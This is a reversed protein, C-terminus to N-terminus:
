ATKTARLHRGVAFWAGVLGLMISSILLVFTDFFSIGLLHFQSHYLTAVHHTPNKIWLLLLDVLQWALIGGLLGYTAGTYLFPRRIFAYTGGILKIVNIENQNHETAARICNNVILLVGLGLFLSLAYIARHALTMLAFLRQVWDTDFQVTDTEPLDRLEQQLQSLGEPAHNNSTPLITIAWPLPNNQLDELVNKVGAQQQLENLGEAPSILRVERINPNKQLAQSLERAQNETIDPKLYLTLQTTQQFNHSLVEVNKLLIFLATPLALAIGIIASTLLTNIPTRSLQGISNFAAQIHRIFYNKLFGSRKRKTLNKPQSQRM